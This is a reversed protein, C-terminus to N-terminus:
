AAKELVIEITSVNRTDGEEGLVESAIRVEKITLKGQFFRRRVVEVVDVAHSISQGRAKVTLTNQGSNFHMMVATAYAMLPKKGIFVTDPPIQGRPREVRPREERREPAREMRAEPAHETRETRPEHHERAPKHEVKESMTTTETTM